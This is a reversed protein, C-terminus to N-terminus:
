GATAAPWHGRVAHAQIRALRPAAGRVVLNFLFGLVLLALWAAPRDALPWLLVGVLITAHIFVLLLLDAMVWAGLDWVFYPMRGFRHM